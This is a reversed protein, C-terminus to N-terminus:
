VRLREILISRAKEPYLRPGPFDLSKPGFTRYKIEEGTSFV